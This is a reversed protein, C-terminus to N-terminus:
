ANVTKQTECYAGQLHICCQQTNCTADSQLCPGAINSRNAGHAKPGTKLGHNKGLLLLIYQLLCRYGKVELREAPKLTRFNM